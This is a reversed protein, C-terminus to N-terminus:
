SVKGSIDGFTDLGGGFGREPCGAPDKLVGQRIYTGLHLWIGELVERLVGRGCRRRREVADDDLPARRPRRGWLSVLAWFSANPVFDLALYQTRVGFGYLDLALITFSVGLSSDVHKPMPDVGFDVHNPM